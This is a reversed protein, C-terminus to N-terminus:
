QMLRTTYLPGGDYLNAEFVRKSMIATSSAVTLAALGAFAVTQTM